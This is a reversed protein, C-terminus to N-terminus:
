PPAMSLKPKPGFWSYPEVSVTDLLVNVPLWAMPAVQAKPSAPAMSTSNLATAVMLLELKVPLTPVPPAPPMEWPPESGLTTGQGQAVGRERAVLGDAAAARRLPRRGENQDRAFTFILLELKM